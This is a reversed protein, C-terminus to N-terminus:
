TYILYSFPISVCLTLFIILYFKIPDEDYTDKDRVREPAHADVTQSRKTTRTIYVVQDRSGGHVSIRAGRALDQGPIGFWVADNGLNQPDLWVITNEPGLPPPPVVYEFAVEIVCEFLDHGVLLRAATPKDISDIYFWKRRGPAPLKEKSVFSHIAQLVPSQAPISAFTHEAVPAGVHVAVRAVLDRQDEHVLLRVAANRQSRSLCIWKNQDSPPM